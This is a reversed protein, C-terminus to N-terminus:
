AEGGPTHTIRPDPDSYTGPSFFWGQDASRPTPGAYARPAGALDWCAQHWVTNEGGVAFPADENEANENLRGYGNYTDIFVGGDPTIAVGETMWFPAGKHEHAYHSLLPKGCGKCDQTFFGM